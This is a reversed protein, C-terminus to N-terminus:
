NPFRRAFNYFLFKETQKSSYYKNLLEGWKEYAQYSTLGPITEDIGDFDSGFGLHEEGGLECIYEVHKLLDDATAKRGEKVFFPVFTLGIVGDKEIIAKIQEDKLNRPHPCLQYCNSHSAIPLHAVTMVDWFARECLHSVDTWIAWQNLKEVVQIGFASLGAGRKELVGDAAANAYNWTLGVSRVGLHYLTSLKLVDEEIAECGELTLVVGIDEEALHLIDERSKVIKIDPHPKVITEYFLDVQELAARFRESPKLAPSLFIAFCQVKSRAKKLQEYTIHLEWNRQFSLGKENQLRYLVDCHADFIM